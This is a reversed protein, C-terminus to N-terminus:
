SSEYARRFSSADVAYFSTCGRVTHTVGNADKENKRVERRLKGVSIRPPFIPLCKEWPPFFM